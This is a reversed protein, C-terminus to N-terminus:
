KLKICMKRKVLESIFEKIDREVFEHEVECIEHFHSIIDKVSKKGDILMWIEPGSGLLETMTNSHPSFLRLVNEESVYIVSDDKKYVDMDMIDKKNVM